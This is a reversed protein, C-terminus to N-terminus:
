SHGMNQTLRQKLLFQMNEHLLMLRRCIKNSLTKWLNLNTQVAHGHM